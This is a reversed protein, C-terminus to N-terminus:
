LEITIRHLLEIREITTKHNLLQGRERPDDALEIVLRAARLEDSRYDGANNVIELYPSILRGFEKNQYNIKNPSILYASIFIFPNLLKEASSIGEGLYEIVQDAISPDDAYRTYLQQNQEKLILLSILLPEDLFHNTPISCLILKIRTVLLNIKRLSLKFRRSLLECCDILHELEYRGASRDKFYDTVSTSNLISYLYNKNNPTKISYDIDIFRQLYQRSDFNNGYIANVSHSLQKIDTSLVFILREINFLHKIRELLEIAYIPRCRDLEDIFIILNKQEDGLISLTEEIGEKFQATAATQLNHKQILDTAVGGALEAAIEEYEKNIDLAGLTAAKAAAIVASKIICPLISKTKKWSDEIISKNNRETVWKDLESAIAILPDDSYDTEWANFYISEINQTELFGRWLKVFTTKGTGWPSDLSVVLPGDISTFISSINKIEGERELIDNKFPNQKNIVIETPRLQM